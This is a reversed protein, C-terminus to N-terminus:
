RAPWGLHRRAQAAAQAEIDRLLQEAHHEGSALGLLIYEDTLGQVLDRRAVQREEDTLPLNLERKFALVALRREYDVAGGLADELSGRGGLFPSPRPPPRDFAWPRAARLVAVTLRDTPFQLQALDIQPAPEPM